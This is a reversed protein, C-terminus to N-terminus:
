GAAILGANRLMRMLRQVDDSIQAPDADLFAEALIDRIEQPTIPEELLTWIVTAMPDMRHIALGDPDALYLTDGIREAITDPRQRTAGDLAVDVGPGDFRAFRFEQAPRTGDPIADPWDRFAAGLCEVAGDLGSYTLRYVPREVLVRAMATLIDGSHRDRTFNQRLLADMAVDPPVQELRAETTDDQRDLLVFAGLPCVEGHLPQDQVSLYLYQRNQPGSVGAVWDKFEQPATAPLPLRLRPVTGMALGLAAGDAGFGLPLVDDSFVRHGAMALAASLTSKGARRLNPFVVLRGAMEVAAAHLCILRADEAPLAFSLASVADCLANVPDYLQVPREEVHWECRFRAPDTTAHISFFPQRAPDADEDRFPWGTIVQPLLALVQAAGELRLPATLGAFIVDRQM